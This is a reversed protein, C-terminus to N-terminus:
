ISRDTQITLDNISDSESSDSNDKEM